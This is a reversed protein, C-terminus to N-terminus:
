KWTNLVNHVSFGLSEFLACVEQLDQIAYKPIILSGGSKIKVFFHNETEDVTEVASINITSEGTKDKCYIALNTIEVYVKEGFRYSYNEKIYTKYHKKYRWVFYKPYLLGTIIAAIGFYLALFNTQEYYFFAALAIFFLTILIWGNVKKRNIRKSQSATFLQFALFDRENLEFELIM